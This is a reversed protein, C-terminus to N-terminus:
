EAAIPSKSLRETEWRAMAAFSTRLIKGIKAYDRAAFALEIAHQWKTFHGKRARRSMGKAGMTDKAKNSAASLGEPGKAIVAKNAAAVFDMNEIRKAAISAREESDRAEWVKKTTLSMKEHGVTVARKSGAASRGDPGLTKKAKRVFERKQEIPIKAWGLKCFESREEFTLNGVIGCKRRNYGRPEYSDFKTAWETEAQKAADQGLVVDVIESRFHEKGFKRIVQGILQPCRTENRWRAKMARHAVDPFRHEIDRISHIAMGVYQKGETPRDGSGRPDADNTHVYITFWRQEPDGSLKGM